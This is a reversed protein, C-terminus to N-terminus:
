GKPPEALKGRFDGGQEWKGQAMTVSVSATRQLALADANGPHLRLAEDAAQVADKARGAILYAGGLAIWLDARDPEDDSAAEYAFVATEPWNLAMAAQGMLGLAATNHPDRRLLREASAFAARPEDKLKMSGGLLFPATSVARVLKSLGSQRMAAVKLLAARELKRVSLCAPQEDLIKACLDAAQEARGRDFASRASEAQKQLAFSLASILVEPM